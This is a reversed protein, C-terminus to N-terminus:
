ACSSRTPFSTTKQEVSEVCYRQALTLESSDKLIVQNKSNRKLYDDIDSSALLSLGQVVQEVQLAHGRVLEGALPTIYDQLKRYLQNGGSLRV